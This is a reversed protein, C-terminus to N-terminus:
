NNKSDGSGRTESETKILCNYTLWNNHFCGFHDCKEKIRAFFKNAPIVIDIILYLRKAHLQPGTLIDFNM